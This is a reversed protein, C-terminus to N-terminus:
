MTGAWSRTVEGIAEKKIKRYDVRLDSMVRKYHDKGAAEVAGAPDKKRYYDGYNSALMVIESLLQEQDPDLAQKGLEAVLLKRFKPNKGALKLVHKKFTMEVRCPSSLETTTSSLLLRVM